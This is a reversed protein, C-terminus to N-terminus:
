SGHQESEFGIVILSVTAFLMSGSWVARIRLSTQIRAPRMGVINTKEHRPEFINKLPFWKGKTKRFCLNLHRASIQELAPHFELFLVSITRFHVFPLIFHRAVTWILVFIAFSVDTFTKWKLYIGIKAIELWPDSADHVLLVLTGVRVFNSIWSFYILVITAIHHVIMQGFDSRKHDSLLTFILSCYFGLEIMYYWYIDNSVHQKPWGVWCEMTKGFWPKNWLLCLGYIFSTTYFMFHWGSDCFKKIKPTADRKKRKRFWVAIQKVTWDTQKSLVEYNPEHRQKYVSELLPNPTIYPFRKQEIGLKYGLPAILFRELIFRLIVLGAGLLIGWQLDGVQPYYDESGPQNELDKWGYHKGFIKNPFWWKDDWVFDYISNLAM